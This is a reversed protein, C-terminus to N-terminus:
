RGKMLAHTALLAQAEESDPAHYGRIWDVGERSIPLALVAINVAINVTNPSPNPYWAGRTADGRIVGRAWETYFATSAFAGNENVVITVAIESM